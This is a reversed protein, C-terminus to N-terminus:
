NGRALQNKHMENKVELSQTKEQVDDHWRIKTERINKKKKKNIVSEMRLTNGLKMIIKSKKNLQKRRYEKKYDNWKKAIGEEVRTGEGSGKM